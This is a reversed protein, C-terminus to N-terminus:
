NKSLKVDEFTHAHFCKWSEISHNKENTKKNSNNNNPADKM